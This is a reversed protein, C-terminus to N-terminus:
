KSVAPVCVIVTSYRPSEFKVAFLLLKNDCTTLLDSVVVVSLEAGLGDLEPACTTKVACTAEEPTAKVLAPVTWNLSPAFGIVQVPPPSLPVLVPSGRVAPCVVHEVLVKVLPACLM